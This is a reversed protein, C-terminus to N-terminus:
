ANDTEKDAVLVKMPVEMQTQSESARPVNPDNPVNPVNPLPVWFNRHDGYISHLKGGNGWCIWLDVGLEM